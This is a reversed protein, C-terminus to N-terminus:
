IPAFASSGLVTRRKFQREELVVRQVQSNLYGWMNGAAQEAQRLLAAMAEGSPAIGSEVAEELVKLAAQLPKNTLSLPGGARVTAKLVALDDHSPKLQGAVVVLPLDLQTADDFADEVLERVKPLDNPATFSLVRLVDTRDRDDRSREDIPEDPRVWAPREAGAALIRAFGPTRRLRPLLATDYALLDVFAHRRLEETGRPAPPEVERSEKNREAPKPLVSDTGAAADSLARLSMWADGGKVSSKSELPAAGKPEVPPAWGLGSARLPPPVPPGSNSAMPVSPGPSAHVSSPPPTRVSISSSSAFSPRPPPPPDPAAVSPPPDVRFRMGISSKSEVPLAATIGLAAEPPERPGQMSPPPPPSPEPPLPTSRFAPRPQTQSLDADPTRFPLADDDYDPSPTRAGPSAVAFPLQIKALGDPLTEVHTTEVEALLEAREQPTPPPPTSGKGPVRAIAVTFRTTRGDVLVLGRWTLTVVARDTDIFLTDAILPVRVEKTGLVTAYPVVGDLNTVLRSYSPSLNELVLREDPRIPGSLWNQHPASQFFRVDFAAPMPTRAPDALWARDETRLRRARSPWTPAIPGWGAVDVSDSPHTLSMGLPLVSPAGRRGWGDVLETDIGVPNDSDSGGAAYEYALPMRSAQPEELQDDALFHRPPFVELATDLDGVLLRVALRSQPVKKPAYAHGVLMVEPSHKFPVLDGPTRISRDVAGDWPTDMPRLPDSPEVIPALRPLLAYTTKAIISCRLEGRRARWFLTAASFPGEVLVETELAYTM